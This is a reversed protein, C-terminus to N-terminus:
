AVEEESLSSKGLKSMLTEAEQRWKYVYEIREADIVLWADMLFHLEKYRLLHNNVIKLNESLSAVEGAQLPEFGLMWGELLVVDVTGDVITWDEVPARDGRGNNLSKDYRPIRCPRSNPSMTRLEQLTQELLPLDHTGANGRYQLLPNSSYKEALKAQEDATLYFDDLSLIECHKDHLKFLQLLASTLTTKGAGQPASIGIFVPGQRAPTAGPDPLMACSIYEFIPLYLSDVASSVSDEQQWAHEELLRTILSGRVADTVPVASPFKEAVATRIVNLQRKMLCITIRSHALLPTNM